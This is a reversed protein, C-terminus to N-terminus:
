TEPLLDKWNQLRAAAATPDLGANAFLPQLSIPSCGQQNLTRYVVDILADDNDLLRLTSELVLQLDDPYLRALLWFCTATAGRLNKQRRGAGAETRYLYLVAKILEWIFIRIDLLSCHQHGSELFEHIFDLGVLILFDSPDFSKDSHYTGNIALTRRQVDLKTYTLRWTQCPAPLASLLRVPALLGYVFGHKFATDVSDLDQSLLLDEFWAWLGSAEQNREADATHPLKAHAEFVVIAGVFAPFGERLMQKYISGEEEEPPLPYRTLFEDWGHKLQSPAIGAKTVADAFADMACKSLRWEGDKEQWDGQIAQRALHALLRVALLQGDPRQLLIGYSQSMWQPLEDTKAKNLRDKTETLKIQAEASPLHLFGGAVMHALALHWAKAHDYILEALVVALISRTWVGDANFVLPAKSLLLRVMDGDEHIQPSKVAGWIHQPLPLQNITDLWTDTDLWLLLKSMYDTDLGRAYNNEYSRRVAFYPDDCRQWKELEYEIVERDHGQVASSLPNQWKAVLNTKFFTAWESIRVPVSRIGEILKHEFREFLFFDAHLFEYAAELFRREPKRVVVLGAIADVALVMAANYDHANSHSADTGSILRELANVFFAPQQITLPAILELYPQVTSQKVPQKNGEFSSAADEQRSLSRPWAVELWWKALVETLEARYPLREVFAEAAQWPPRVSNTWHAESFLPNRM